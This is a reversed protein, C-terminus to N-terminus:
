PVSWGGALLQYKRDDIPAVLLAELTNRSTQTSRSTVNADFHDPSTWVSIIEFNNQRARRQLVVQGASEPTASQGAAIEDIIAAAVDLHLPLVELQTIVVCDGIGASPWTQAGRSGHIRDEYPSGLVPAIAKRFDLNSPTSLHELYAAESRYRGVLEFHNPRAAMRLAAREITGPTSGVDSVLEHLRGEIEELGSRSGIDIHVVACWEDLDV